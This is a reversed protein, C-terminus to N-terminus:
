SYDEVTLTSPECPSLLQTLTTVDWLGGRYLGVLEPNDLVPIHERECCVLTHDVSVARTITIVDPRAEVVAHTFRQDIPLEVSITHSGFDRYM